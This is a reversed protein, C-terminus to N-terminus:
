GDCSSVSNVVLSDVEVPPWPGKPLVLTDPRGVLLDHLGPAVIGDSGCFGFCVLVFFRFEVGVLGEWRFFIVVSIKDRLFGSAEGIVEELLVEGEGLEALPM